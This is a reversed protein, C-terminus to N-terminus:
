PRGTRGEHAESRELTKTGIGRDTTESGREQSEDRSHADGGVNSGFRHEEVPGRRGEMSRTGPTWERASMATTAETLLHWGGSGTGVEGIRVTM